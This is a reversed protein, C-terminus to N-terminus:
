ALRTLVATAIRKPAQTGLRRRVTASSPLDTDRVFDHLGPWRKQNLRWACLATLLEEDTWPRMRRGGYAARLGAAQVGETWSGFMRVVTQPSPMTPEGEADRLRPVRGTRREFRRLAELAKSATWGETSSALRARRSVIMSCYGAPVGTLKEIQPYTLGRARLDRVRNIQQDSYRACRHFAGRPAIDGSAGAVATRLAASGVPDRALENLQIKADMSAAPTAYVAAAADGREEVMRELSVERKRRDRAQMAKFRATRALWGGIPGPALADRKRALEVWAEQVADEADQNSIGRVQRTVGRVLGDYLAADLDLDVGTGNRRVGQDLM